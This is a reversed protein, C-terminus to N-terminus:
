RLRACARGGRFRAQPWAVVGARRRDLVGARFRGFAPQAGSGPDWARSGPQGARALASHNARGMRSLDERWSGEPIARAARTDLRLGGTVPRRRCESAVWKRRGSGRIRRRGSGPRGCTGTMLPRAADAPARALIPQAIECGIGAGDRRGSRGCDSSLLSTSPCRAGGRASPIPRGAECRRGSYASRGM